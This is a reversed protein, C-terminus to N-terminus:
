YIPNQPLCSQFAFVTQSFQCTKFSMVRHSVDLLVSLQSTGGHPVERYDDLPQPTKAHQLGSSHLVLPTFLQSSQQAWLTSTLPVIHSTTMFYYLFNWSWKYLFFGLCGFFLCVFFFVWGCFCFGFGVVLCVSRSIFKWLKLFSCHFLSIWDVVTQM